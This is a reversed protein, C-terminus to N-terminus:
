FISKLNNSQLAELRFIHPVGLKLKLATVDAEGFMGTKLATIINTPVTVDFKEDETVMKTKVTTFDDSTDLKGILIKFEYTVDVANGTYGDVGTIIAPISNINTGGADKTVLLVVQGIVFRKGDRIEQLLAEAMAQRIQPRLKDNNFMDYVVSPIRRVEEVTKLPDVVDAM